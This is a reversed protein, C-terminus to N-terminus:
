LSQAWCVKKMRKRCLGLLKRLKGRDCVGSPFRSANVVQGNRRCIQLNFLSASATHPHTAQADQHVNVIAVQKQRKPHPYLVHRNMQRQRCSQTIWSLTNLSWWCRRIESRGCSWIQAEGSGMVKSQNGRTWGTEVGRQRGHLCYIAYISAHVWAAAVRRQTVQASPLCPMPPTCTSVVHLRIASSSVGCSGRVRPRMWPALKPWLKGGSPQLHVLFDCM